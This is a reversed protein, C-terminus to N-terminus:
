LSAGVKRLEAIQPAKPLWLKDFEAILSDPKFDAATHFAIPTAKFKEILGAETTVIDNIQADLSQAVLRRILDKDKADLGQWIRGSVLPAFPMFLANMQLLSKAVKDFRQNWSFEIDAELGDVQGNAMADFVQPTPIPTPAAGLQQYFDRYVPTPNIRLKMGKVDKVSAIDKTSFVVRMGTIGWGLGITGTEKPLVDLLKLAADLRVLRAVNTTSRVLYPANIAAISSVRSGLEAAQLWGMDLAGTQMQQMMAAENGLQGSHFVTASLRGNTEKKLTEGFAVAARNWSHGGPTILGLRFEKAQARAQGIFAPAALAASAQVFHRRTLTM